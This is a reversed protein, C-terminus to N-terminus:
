LLTWIYQILMWVGNGIAYLLSLIIGVIFCIGFLAVWNDVDIVLDWIKKPVIKGLLGLITAFIAIVVIPLLIKGIIILVSM